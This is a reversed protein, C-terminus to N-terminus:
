LNQSQQRVDNLDDHNVEGIAEDFWSGSWAGGLPCCVPLWNSPEGTSIGSAPQDFTWVAAMLLM